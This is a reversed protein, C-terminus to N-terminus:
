DSQEHRIEAKAARYGKAMGYDFALLLIDAVNGPSSAKLTMMEAWRMPYRNQIGPMINTREIYQRIKEIESM